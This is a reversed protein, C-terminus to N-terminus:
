SAGRRPIGVYALAASLAALAASVWAIAAFAAGMAAVHAPDDLTEGYSFAGGARAYAFGVLAGMAAVAVLGAIRSIANNVGSATGSQSDAVAGMVATSLPAVVMSMGFGTVTMAPLVAFWYNQLPVVLALATYGAAVTVGGMAIVPGPGIKDSLRGFRTSFASIFISLPAFALAAEIESIQWGAVTLMPLFFLIASLGFYLAFTAANAAAFTHDRFLALPMMPHASRHEQWLFALLTLAGLGGIIWTLPTTGSGELHTFTWAIAALGAVALVAGPIDVPQGPRRTDRAVGARTMLFAILGLPLNIAFIWRWMEPGGFSLALGGVIPGAATTVASAAAWLGIARGRVERPYARSIMALSGPIMMAAGAGQALRALILVDPNPALACILSTAVFVAIGLSFVRALGFRDGFAGGVLILAALTVMYANNIWTAQDLTAGLTQRIAPMAISVVTGDIFGMSSALVAATLILRRHREECFDAHFVPRAKAPAARQSPPTAAM